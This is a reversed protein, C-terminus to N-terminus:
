VGVGYRLSFLWLNTYPVKSLPQVATLTPLLTTAGAACLQLLSDPPVHALNVSAEIAALSLPSV